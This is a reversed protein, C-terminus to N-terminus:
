NLRRYGDTNAVKEARRRQASLTTELTEAAKRVAKEGQRSPLTTIVHFAGSTRLFARVAKVPSKVSSKVTWRLLAANRHETRKWVSHGKAKQKRGETVPRHAQIGSAIAMRYRKLLSRGM